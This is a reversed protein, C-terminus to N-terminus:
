ATTSFSMSLAVLANNAASGYWIIGGDPNINFVGPGANDRGIVDLTYPPRFGVPLAGLPSNATGSKVGLRLEVIDGTLRYSPVPRPAGVHVWGNLLGLATWVGPPQAPPTASPTVPGIDEVSLTTGGYQNVDVTNGSTQVRIRWDYAQGAVLNSREASFNVTMYGDAITIHNLTNFFAVGSNNDYLQVYVAGLATRQRVDVTATFRYMRGQKAIMPVSLSPILTFTTGIALQSTSWAPPGVAGWASNWRAVEASMGSGMIDVWQGGVKARLVGTM